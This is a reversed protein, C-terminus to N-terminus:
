TFLALVLSLETSPYCQYCQPVPLCHLNYLSTHPSQVQTGLLCHPYICTSLIRQLRDRQYKSFWLAPLQLLRSSICLWSGPSQYCGGISSESTDSSIYIAFPRVVYQECSHGDFWAGLNTVSIESDEVTVSELQVKSLQSGVFPFETKTDNINLRNTFM